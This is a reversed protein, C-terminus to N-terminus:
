RETGQCKGTAVDGARDGVLALVELTTVGGDDDLGFGDFGVVGGFLELEYDGIVLLWYGIVEREGGGEKICGGHNASLPPPM